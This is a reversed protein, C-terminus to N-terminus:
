DNSDGDQYPYTKCNELLREALLRITKHQEKELRKLCTPHCDLSEFILFTAWIEAIATKAEDCANNDYALYRYLGIFSKVEKPFRKDGKIDRAFDGWPSKRKDFKGVFEYFTSM